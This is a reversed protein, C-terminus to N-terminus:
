LLTKANNKNNNNNSKQEVRSTIIANNKPGTSRDRRNQLLPVTIIAQQAKSEESSKNCNNCHRANCCLASFSLSLSLSIPLSLTLKQALKCSQQICLSRDASRVGSRCYIQLKRHMDPLASCQDFEFELEFNQRCCGTKYRHTNNNNNSRYSVKDASAAADNM